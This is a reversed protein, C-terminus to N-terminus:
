SAEGARLLEDNVKRFRRELAAARKVIKVAYMHIFAARCEIDLSGRELSLFGLQKDADRLLKRIEAVQRRDYTTPRNSLAAVGAKGKGGSGRQLKM